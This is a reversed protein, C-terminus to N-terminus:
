IRKFYYVPYGGKVRYREVWTALTYNEEFKGNLSSNSMIKKDKGFIGVHGHKIPLDTFTSFGTPSIIINGPEAETVRVFKNAQDVMAAFLKTTSIGPSEIYEQFAKFHILNVSEACALDDPAVDDPSADSGLCELAAEYLKERPSKVIPTPKVDPVKVQPKIFAMLSKLTAVLWSDKVQRKQIYIRKCFNIDQDVDKLTPEYSDEFKGYLDHAYQFSWHNDGSQRIYIGRDDQSWAYVARSLPSSKLATKIGTSTVWEHFFEWQELWKKGEARCKAEDAGKFSYYEEAPADIYPLMEEPILGHKRIAEYVTQPDNGPPKTGAVIGLFRDSYNVTLGFVEKMYCEIQALTNFSTCNYTEYRGSQLEKAPRSAFWNGDERFVRFPMSSAGLVYHTDDIVSPKYGFNKM